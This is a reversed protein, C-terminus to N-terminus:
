AASASAFLVLTAAMALNLSEARGRLPIRVIDDVAALTAADLGRGENGLVWLHPRALPGDGSRARDALEDLSTGGGAATGLLRVGDSRARAAAQQIDVGPVVPLHFLSGATSRVAKPAHVDASGHSLAVGTAGAADAARVVTGVNGPDQVEVLLAGFGLSQWPFADVGEAPPIDVVAVVGQPTAADAIAAVVDPTVMRVVAADALEAIRPHRSLVDDAM